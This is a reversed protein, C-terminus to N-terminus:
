FPPPQEDSEPQQEFAEPQSTQAPPPPELGYDYPTVNRSQGTVTTWCVTGDHELRVRVEGHTFAEHWTRDKPVLNEIRTPGTPWAPVHGTDCRTALVQSGPGTSYVYRAQVDAVQHPKPRYSTEARHVLRGSQEDIVMLRLRPLETAVMAAVVERPVIGVGPVEAPLDVEGLATRLGIVIGVEIPRGAITKREEILWQGCIRGLGESRLVGIPRQDGSSKAAAAYADAATKVLVADEVPGDLVVAAKGDEGPYLSVDSQARAERARRQAAKPDIRDAALRADRRLEEGTRATPGQRDFLKEEVAALTEPDDVGSTGKAVAFAQKESLDGHQFLRWTRPLLRRVRRSWYMRTQAAGVPERLALAVEKDAGIADRQMLALVAAAKLAAAYNELKACCRLYAPLEWASLSSPEVGALLV